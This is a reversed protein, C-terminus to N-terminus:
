REGVLEALAEVVAPTPDRGTLAAITALGGPNALNYEIVLPGAIDIAVFRVGEAALVDAVRQALRKEAITLQHAVAVAGATLNNRHDDRPIRRYAGVLRGNAALVRTEGQAFEERYRQVICYASGSRTLEVLRDDLGDTEADLRYVDRGYSGASPKIVWPGGREIVAKLWEPDCSSYTEPHIDALPGTSLAHKAHLALLAAPSNVLREPDIAGLLQMRDLFTERRGLGILWILDFDVLRTACTKLRLDGALNVVDDHDVTTVQWGAAGFARALRDANDNPSSESPTALLCIRPHM